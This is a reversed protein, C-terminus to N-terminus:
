HADSNCTLVHARARAHSLGVMMDRTPLTSPRPTFPTYPDVFYKKGKALGALSSPAAGVHGLSRTTPYSAGYAVGVKVGSGELEGPAGTADLAQTADM